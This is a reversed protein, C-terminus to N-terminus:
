NEFAMNGWHRSFRLFALAETKSYKSTHTADAVSKLDFNSYWYIIGKAVTEMFCRIHVQWMKTTKQFFWMQKVKSITHLRACARARAHTHIRFQFVLNELQCLLKKATWLPMNFVANNQVGLVESMIWTILFSWSQHLQTFTITPTMFCYQLFLFNEKSRSHSKLKIKHIHSIKACWKRNDSNLVYM